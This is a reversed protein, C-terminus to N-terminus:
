INHKKKELLLRCVLHGRSQLESTHEESRLYGFLLISVFLIPKMLSFPNVGAAKLATLENHESFKGFAMISAVLVSMPVALVVMYALNNLILEIVVFIPLGKGVLKDVHLILFQMLLLFMITFFCFLFPGAHKKLLDKQIHNIM